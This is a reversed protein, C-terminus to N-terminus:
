PLNASGMLFPAICGRPAQERVPVDTRYGMKCRIVRCNHSIGYFCTHSINQSVKAVMTWATDHSIFLMAAPVRLCSGGSRIETDTSNCRTHWWVKRSRPRALPTDLKRELASVSIRLLWLTKSGECSSMLPLSVKQVSVM